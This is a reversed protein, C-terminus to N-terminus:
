MLQPTKLPDLSYNIPTIDKFFYYLHGALIGKIDDIIDGGATLSLLVM